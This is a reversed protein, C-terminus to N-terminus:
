KLEVEITGLTTYSMVAKSGAGMRPPPFVTGTIVVDGARLYEDSYTTLENALWTLAELPDVGMNMTALASAREEGDIAVTATEKTFDMESLPVRTEGLIIGVHFVNGTVDHDRTSPNEETGATWTSLLEIVGVVATVADGVQERTLDPGPLDQGILFAFEGEVVATDAVFSAAEVPTGPEFVNSAMIHGYIPDLTAPDEPMRSFGIKWGVREENKLKEALIDAQIDYATQRDLDPFNVAMAETNIKKREAELLHAVIAARDSYPTLTTTLVDADAAKEADGATESEAAPTATEEETAACASLMTVFASSVLIAILNRYM